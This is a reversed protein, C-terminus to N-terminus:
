QPPAPNPAITRIRTCTSRLPLPRGQFDPADTPWRNMRLADYGNRDRGVLTARRLGGIANLLTNM